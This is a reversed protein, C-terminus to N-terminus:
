AQRPVHAQWWAACRQTTWADEPTPRLARLCEAVLLVGAPRQHPDKALCAHVLQDLEAPLPIACVMSPLSPPIHRLADLLASPTTATFPLRGTLLWFMVGGLAYLDARGDVATGLAQEPAMFAITGASRALGVGSREM